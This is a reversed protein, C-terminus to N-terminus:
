LHSELGKSDIEPFLLGADRVQTTMGVAPVECAMTKIMLRPFTHIWDDQTKTGLIFADM